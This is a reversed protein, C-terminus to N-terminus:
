SVVHSRASLWSSGQDARCEDGASQRRRARREGVLRAMEVALGGHAAAFRPRSAGRREDLGAFGAVDAREAADPRDRAMIEEVGAVVELRRAAVVGKGIWAHDNELARRGRLQARDVYGAM